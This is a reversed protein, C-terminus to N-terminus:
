KLNKKRFCIAGITGIVAILIVSYVPFLYINKPINELSSTYQYLQCTPLLDYLLLDLKARFSDLMGKETLFWIDSWLAPPLSQLGIAVLLSAIAGIVRNGILVSATCIITAIASVSVVAFGMQIILKELPLEFGGLLPVGACAIIASTLYMTVAVIISTILNALYISLRSHGAILKNRITKDSYETGIFLSIAVSLAIVFFYDGGIMVFPGDAYLPTDWHTKYFWNNIVTYIPGVMACVLSLWFLMNKRLRSLNSALLRNMSKSVEIREEPFM